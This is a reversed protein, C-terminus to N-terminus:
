RRIKQGDGKPWNGHPNIGQLQEGFLAVDALPPAPVDKGDVKQVKGDLTDKQFHKVQNEPGKHMFDGAVDKILDFGCVGWLLMPLPFGLCGTENSIADREAKSSARLHQWAADMVDKLIKEQCGERAIKQADAYVLKGDCQCALYGCRRSCHKGGSKFKAMEALAPLDAFLNLPLPRVRV